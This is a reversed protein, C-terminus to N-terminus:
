VAVGELGDRAGVFFGAVELGLVGGLCVHERCRGHAAVGKDDPREAVDDQPKPRSIRANPEEMAMDLPM